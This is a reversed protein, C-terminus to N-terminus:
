FNTIEDLGARMAIEAMQALFLDRMSGTPIQEPSLRRFAAQTPELRSIIEAGFADPSREAFNPMSVLSGNRLNLWTGGSSVRNMLLNFGRDRATSELNLSAIHASSTAVAQAESINPQAAVLEFPGPLRAVFACIPTQSPDREVLIFTRAERSFWLGPIWIKSASDVSDGVIQTPSSNGPPMTESYPSSSHSPRATTTM